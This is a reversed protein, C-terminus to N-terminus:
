FSTVKPAQIKPLAKALEERSIKVRALLMPCAHEELQICKACCKASCDRCTLIKNKHKCQSM